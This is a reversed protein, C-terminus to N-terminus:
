RQDAYGTDGGSPPSDFLALATLGPPQKEYTVDSHWTTSSLQSQKDYNFTSTADRSFYFTWTLITYVHLM